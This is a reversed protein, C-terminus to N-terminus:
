RYNLTSTLEEAAEKDKIDVDAHFVTNDVISIFYYREDTVLEAWSNNSGQGGTIDDPNGKEAIALLTNNYLNKDIEASSGALTIDYFTIVSDSEESPKAEVAKDFWGHINIQQMTVDETVFGAEEAAKEFTEASVEERYWPMRSRLYFVGVFILLCLISILAIIWSKKKM